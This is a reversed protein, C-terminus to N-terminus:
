RPSTVTTMGSIDVRDRILDWVIRRANVPSGRSTEFLTVLAGENSSAEAVGRVTDYDLLDAFIQRNLTLPEGTRETVVVEGSATVGTLEFTTGTPANTGASPSAERVRAVLSRSTLNLVGGEGLRRQVMSVDDSMRITGPVRDFRMSGKWDFLSRGRSSSGGNGAGGIALPGASPRGADDDGTERLDVIVLRGAGPIEIYGEPGNDATIVAGQAQLLRELRRGETATADQAYRVAQVRSETGGGEISPDVRAEAFTLRREPSPESRAKAERVAQAHAAATEFRAFVSDADLVQRELGGVEGEAHVDGICELTGADDDFRMAQTWRAQMTRASATASEPGHSFTGPGVVEIARTLGNVKIHDGKVATVVSERVQMAQSSPGRLDILQRPVDARLEASLARLGDPTWVEVWEQALVDRVILAGSADRELMAELLGANISEGIASRVRVNGTATAITPESEGKAPDFLVDLTDATVTNGKADAATAVGSGIARSLAPRQADASAVFIARLSDGRISSGSSTARADGALIAEKIRDTMRGDTAEFLFTASDSWTAVPRESENQVGPDLSELKGAGPVHGIGTALNQEIRVATIRGQDPMTLTAGETGPRSIALQERTAGYELISCRGSANTEADDITVVGSRDATVRLWVDNAALERPENSLPRMVMPGTWTMTVTNDRKEPSTEDNGADVAASAAATSGSTQDEPTGGTGSADGRPTGARAPSMAAVDVEPSPASEETSRDSRTGGIAGEPLKGDVTRSWVDLRDGKLVRQQQLVVVEDAFTTLYHVIPAAEEVAPVRPRAAPEPQYAVQVLGYERHPTARGRDARDAITTGRHASPRAEGRIPHASADRTTGAADPTYVLKGGGLVEVLELRERTQSALVRLSEGEFYVGRGEVTFRQPSGLEPVTTDFTLTSTKAILSPEGLEAEMGIGVKEFIRIEVNGRLVGSEPEQRRSPMVLRGSEARVHLTKGSKLFMWIQPQDVQYHGPLDLPDIVAARLEGSQRTPDVKDMMQIRLNRGAMTGAAMTGPLADRIDPPVPADPDEVVAVPQSGRIVLMALLGLTATGIVGAAILGRKRTSSTSRKPM